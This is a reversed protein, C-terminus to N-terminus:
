CEGFIEAKLSPVIAISKPLELVRTPQCAAGPLGPSTSFKGGSLREAFSALMGLRTLGLLLRQSSPCCTM